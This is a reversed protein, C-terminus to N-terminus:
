PTRAVPQIVILKEGSELYYRPPPDGNEDFWYDGTVGRYVSMRGDLAALRERVAERSTAGSRMVHALLMVAEYSLGAQDTLELGTRQHYRAGLQTLAPSLLKPDVLRTFRVEDFRTTPSPTCCVSGVGDGGLIPIGRLRTGASDMLQVLASGRGLWLVITPRARAIARLALRADTFGAGDLYSIEHVPSVGATKLGTLVEERLGRGYDDNVYVVVVRPKAQLRLTERALFPGQHIDSAVLRFSYPGAASYKPSSSTPALQVIRADNYVQSAAISASSNAHGIVALVRPDKALSDAAALAQRSSTGFNGSLVVLDLPRGRIGGTQNVVDAALQAAEMGDAGLVIGVRIPDAASCALAGLAPLLLSLFSHRM